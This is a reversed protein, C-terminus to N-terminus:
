ELPWDSIGVAQFPINGVGAVFAFDKVIPYGSEKSWSPMWDFIFLVFVVSFIQMEIRVENEQRKM